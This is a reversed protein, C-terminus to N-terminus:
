KITPKGMETLVENLPDLNIFGNVTQGKVLGKKDLFNFFDTTVQLNPDYSFEGRKWRKQYSELPNQKLIDDMKAKADEYYKLSINRSLEPIEERRAIATETLLVHAKLVKKVVEPQNKVLDKKAALWYKPSDKGMLGGKNMDSLVTSGKVKELATPTNGSSYVVIADYKGQSWNDFQKPVIDDWVVEVNGGMSKTALGATSLLKNLQYEDWYRLNALGVKKGALDKISKIEPKAVLVNGNVNSSGAILVYKESGGFRSTKTVYTGFNGAPVYVFDWEDKDMKPWVNDLSRTAELKVQKGLEKLQQNFTDTKQNILPQPAQGGSIYGITITDSVSHVNQTNTSDVKQMASKSGCGALVLAMIIFVSTYKKLMRLVGKKNKTILGTSNTGYKWNTALM